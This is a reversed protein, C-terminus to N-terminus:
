RDGYENVQVGVALTRGFWCKLANSELAAPLGSPEAACVGDGKVGALEDRLL